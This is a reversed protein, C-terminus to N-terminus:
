GTRLRALAQERRALHFSFPQPLIGEAAPVGLERAARYAFAPDALLERGLAVLDADGDELIKEALAPEMIMGVAMTAVDAERRIRAAYPVQHGPFQPPGSRGIPGSIGGTSVDIVDAGAAKLLQSLRVTDEIQVGSPDHDVASVRWFLPMDDPIAARVAETVELAFRSRGEFSGGYADTRTNALSSFFSHILYGHAGHIEVFDFGSTVARRAAAAFAQVLNAIESQTLEHPVPWGEAPATASPGVTQWALPSGAAALPGAGQWPLAASAKRGAHALQIGSPIGHTRYLRTIEAMGAIQEDHWLGLCGPTIRGEPVVGTAEIVAGGVGSLAFRAHHARHWDQVLGDVAQYQCMPSVVIRNPFRVSRIEFPTFLKAVTM